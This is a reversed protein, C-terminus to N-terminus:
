GNLDEQGLQATYLAFYRGKKAMLEDHNGREVIRGNDLVLIVDAKRVTSLRHAIVLSTRGELAVELAQQVARETATDLQATAEDLIVVAPNRLLMRALALRQKEGGSLRFGRDGVVTDLGSPLDVVAPGLQAQTLAQWLQEESAGPCAYLLNDRISQHFLPVDQTVMGVRDQLSHPTADRVDVGNITIRGSTVDYLRRVLTGITTKGSGTEGILAVLQGPGMVFSVDHIVETAEDDAAGDEIELSPVSVGTRGPYAFDVHEVEVRAQGGPIDVANPPSSLGDPVDLVEFLREFSVLANMVAVPATGLSALPSYVRTFASYLAVLTGIMITGDAVLLGGWGFIVAIILGSTMLFGASVSRAYVATRVQLDRIRGSRQNFAALEEDRRGFLAVLLAGAVSFRESMHVNLESLLQLNARALGGVRPTIARVAVIGLPLIVVIATAIQWSLAFLVGISALVLFTNGIVVSTLDTFAQQADNVDNDLRSMLAGTQTRVFFALPLRQVHEHVAARLDFIIGQGIGASVYAGVVGLLQDLLVVAGLLVALVIIATRDRQAIGTDIIARYFLPVSAVAASDAVIILIFLVLRGRYKGAFGFARKTTGRAVRHQL